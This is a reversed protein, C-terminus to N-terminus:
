VVSINTRCTKGSIWFPGLYGVATDLSESPELYVTRDQGSKIYMAYLVLQEPRRRPQKIRRLVPEVQLVEGAVALRQVARPPGDVLEPPVDLVGAHLDEGGLEEELAAGAVVGGRQLPVPLVRLEEHAGADALAGDVDGPGGAAHHVVPPPVVELEDGAGGEEEGDVGVEGGHGAVAGDAAGGAGGM